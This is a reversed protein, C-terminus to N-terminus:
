AQERALEALSAELLWSPFYHTEPVFRYPIADRLAAIAGLYRRYARLGELTLSEPRGVRQGLLALGEVAEAHFVPFSPSHFHLLAAARPLTMGEIGRLRVLPRVDPWRVRALAGRLAELDRLALRVRGGDLWALVAEVNAMSLPREVRYILENYAKEWHPRSREFLRPVLPFFDAARM